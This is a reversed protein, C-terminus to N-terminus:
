GSLRGASAGARVRDPLGPWLVGVEVAVEVSVAYDLQDGTLRCDLLVAGNLEAVRGASRCAATADATATYSTAGSLAAQDAAAVARHDAVLYGGVVIVVLFACCVLAVTLVTLVSGSGREDYRQGTM